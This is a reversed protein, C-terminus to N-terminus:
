RVKVALTLGEGTPLITSRFVRGRAAHGNFERLAKAAAEDEPDDFRQDAIMGWAFTNDALVSGGVRLNRAAWALYQPYSVKDADIFVLDFPGEAEIKRLNELAPGVHLRVQHSLGTRAFTERAVEAHKPEYEFTYLVGGAPMGRLLCVGSYGALTGIEVVRRAGMARTLVELHLGDSEGVHIPPLGAQEARARIEHLVTDEPAFTEEFYRLIKPDNQGFSKEM